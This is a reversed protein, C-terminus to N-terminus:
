VPKVHPVARPAVHVWRVRDVQHLAQFVCAYGQVLGKQVGIGLPTSGIGRVHSEPAVPGPIKFLHGQFVAQYLPSSGAALGGQHDNAPGSPFGAFIGQLRSAIVESRLFLGHQGLHCLGKGVGHHEDIRPANQVKGPQFFVGQVPGKEQPLTAHFAAVGGRVHEGPLHVGAAAEGVGYGVPILIIGAGLVKQPQFEVAVGLVDIHPVPVKFSKGRVRHLEGKPKAQAVGGERHLCLAHGETPVVHYHGGQHLVGAAARAFFHHLGVHFRGLAFQPLGQPVQGSEM